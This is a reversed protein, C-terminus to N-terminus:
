KSGLLDTDFAHMSRFRKIRNNTKAKGSNLKSKTSIERRRKALFRKYDDEQKKIARMKYISHHLRRLEAVGKLNQSKFKKQLTLTSRFANSAFSVLSKKSRPRLVNDDQRMQYIDLFDIPFTSIKSKNPETISDISQSDESLCTSRSLMSDNRKRPNFDETKKENLFKFDFEQQSFPNKGLIEDSGIESNLSIIDDNLGDHNLESYDFFSTADENSSLIPPQVRQSTLKFSSESGMSFESVQNSFQETGTLHSLGTRPLTEYFSYVCRSRGMARQKLCADQQYPITETDIQFM